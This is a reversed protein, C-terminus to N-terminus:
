EQQAAYIETHFHHGTTVRYIQPPQNSTITSWTEGGDDLYDPAVM